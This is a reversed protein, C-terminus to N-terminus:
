TEPPLTSHLTSHGECAGEVAKHLAEIGDPARAEVGGRLHPCRQWCALLHHGELIAAKRTTRLRCAAWAIGHVLRMELEQHMRVLVHGVGDDQHVGGAPGRLRAVDVAGGSVRRNSSM